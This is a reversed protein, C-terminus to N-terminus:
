RRCVFCDIVACRFQGYGELFERKSHRKFGGISATARLNDSLTEWERPVKYGVQKHDRTSVFLGKGALRTRHGHTQSVRELM